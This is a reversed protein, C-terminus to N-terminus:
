RATAGANIVPGNPWSTPWNFGRYRNNVFFSYPYTGATYLSTQGTFIVGAKWTTGAGTLTVAPLLTGGPGILSVTLGTCPDGDPDQYKVKFTFQTGPTGSAPEFGDDTYGSSGTWNLVPPRDVLPGTAKGVEPWRVRNRGDSATILYSHQGHTSLKLKHTYVIGSPWNKGGTGPTMTFPSGAIQKGGPDWVALKMYQCPEGGVHRYRVKFTFNTGPRAYAPAVCSSQYKGTGVPSIACAAKGPCPDLNQLPTDTIASGNGGGPGTVWIDNSVNNRDSCYLVKQGDPSWAPCCAMLRAQPTPSPTDSTLYRLNGGTTDLSVVETNYDYPTGGVPLTSLLANGVPSWALYYFWADTDGTIRQMDTGDANMVYISSYTNYQDHWRDSIFAIKSGDPSWTPCEDEFDGTTVAIRESGDPNMTHIRWTSGGGVSCAIKKGDPSWEPMAFDAYTDWAITRLGTGDPNITCITRPGDNQFAIKKGDPSFRPHRISGTLELIKRVGTGNPNMLYLDYKGHHDRDSVFVIKSWGALAPAAVATLLAILLLPRWFVARYVSFM